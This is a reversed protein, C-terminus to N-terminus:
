LIEIVYGIINDGQVFGYDVEIHSLDHQSWVATNCEVESILDPDNADRVMSYIDVKSVFRPFRLPFRTKLHDIYTLYVSKIRREM